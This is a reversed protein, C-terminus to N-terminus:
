EDFEGAEFRDMLDGFEDALIRTIKRYMRDPDDAAALCGILMICLASTVEDPAGEVQHITEEFKSVLDSIRENYVENELDHETDSM